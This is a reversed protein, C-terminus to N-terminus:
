RLIEDIDDIYKNKTILIVHDGYKIIDDGNPFIIEKGRIISSIINNEKIKLEKLPINLVKSDKTIKFEIAEVENNLIRYLTIINNGRLRIHARVFKIIFNSIIQKPNVISQLEDLKLFNFIDITTVKTITKKIGVKSAYMSLLINEEDIGTLSVFADYNKFREEELLNIDVGNGNIVIANEYRESLFEAKKEDVEIIKVDLKKKLLIDTLFYTIRGGGVIFISQIKFDKEKLDRYFSKIAEPTGTIYLKDNEQIKFNGNPIYINNERKITCIIIKANSFKSLECIKKNCLLSEKDVSMEILNIKNNSFSEVNLANPFFINRAIFNAAYVDPNLILDIGLSTSMFELDTSYGPERIRVITYKSGLKKAMISAIINIEDSETVAIFIDAEEVGAERQVELTAGNGLVGMVDFNSIIKDLIKEDKEILIIDNGEAVLDRCLVEGVKGAGVIIIKM